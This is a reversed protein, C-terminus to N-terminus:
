HLGACNSIPSANPWIGNLLSALRFGAKALQQGAITAAKTLYANDLHVPGAPAHTCSNNDAQCPEVPIGLAGYVQDRAIQHSEWAIDNTAGPKWTDVDKQSAYMQELKRATAETNGAGVTDQLRYVVATDWAKHLNRAPPLSEVAICNGGRDADTATHLPQHLDAVLHIVFALDGYGGWKDCDGEKLRKAYEDIKATVCAGAPCRAPIDSESDQLCLDIYHWTTTSPDQLGFETDARVSAVAMAKELADVDASTALIAAVQRRAAPSLNDAAIIAVIEHGENGWAWASSSAAAGISAIAFVLLLIRRIRQPGPAFPSKIEDQRM